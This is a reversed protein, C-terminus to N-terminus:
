KCFELLLAFVYSSSEARDKINHKMEMRSAMNFGHKRCYDFWKYYGDFDSKEVKRWFSDSHEGLFISIADGELTAIFPKGEV